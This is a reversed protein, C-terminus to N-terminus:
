GGLDARSTLAGVLGIFGAGKCDCHWHSGKILPTLPAASLPDPPFEFVIWAFRVFEVLRGSRPTDRSTALGRVRALSDSKETEFTVRSSYYPTIDFPKAM